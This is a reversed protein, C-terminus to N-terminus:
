KKTYRTTLKNNKTKYEYNYEGIKNDFYFYSTFFSLFICLSLLLLRGTLKFFDINLDIKRFMWQWYTLDNFGLTLYMIYFMSSLLVYLVFWSYLFSTIILIDKIKM